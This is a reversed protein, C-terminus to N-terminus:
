SQNARFVCPLPLFFFFAAFLLLSEVCVYQITRFMKSSDPVRIPTCTQLRNLSKTPFYVDHLPAPHTSLWNFPELHLYMNLYTAVQKVSIFGQLLNTLVKVFAGMSPHELQRHILFSSVNGM